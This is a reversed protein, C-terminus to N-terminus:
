CPTSATSRDGILGDVSVFVWDYSAERLTLVLVGYADNKVVVSGAKRRLVADLSAGGTGVVIEAIGDAAPDGSPTQRAFREYMHAHGNIILDADFRALVDWFARTDRGPDRRQLGHFGSSFLPHHWYALVCRADAAALSAELWRVQASSPHMALNSNLSVVHWGGVEFAYYGRTRAAPDSRYHAFYEFYPAGGETEYDHNGPSPATIANLAGWTPEYCRAFEERTGDPYTHDGVTIVRAAPHAAVIVRALRATAAAAALDKCRAIDGAAVIVVADRTDLDEIVAALKSDDAVALPRECGPAAVVALLLGL